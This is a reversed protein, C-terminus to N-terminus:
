LQFNGTLRCRLPARTQQRKSKRNERAQSLKQDRAAFIAKDKGSFKDAPAVYGIASHLRETNYYTVFHWWAAPMRWASRPALARPGRQTFSAQARDQRQILIIPLPACM